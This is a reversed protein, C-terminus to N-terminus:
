DCHCCLKCCYQSCVTWAIASHRPREQFMTQMLSTSDMKHYLIPSTSSQCDCRPGKPCETNPSLHDTTTHQFRPTNRTTGDTSAFNCFGVAETGWQGATNAEKQGTKLESLRTYRVATMIMATHAHTQMVFCSTKTPEREVKHHSGITAGRM